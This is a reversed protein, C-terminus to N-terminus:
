DLRLRRLPRSAQGSTRPQPNPLFSTSIDYSGNASALTLVLINYTGPRVTATAQANPGDSDNLDVGVAFRYDADAIFLVPPFETSTVSVTLDGPQTITVQHLNTL